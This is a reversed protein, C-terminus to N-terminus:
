SQGQVTTHIIRFPWRDTASSLDYSYCDTSGVLRMLPATQNFTGDMPIRKLVSMCWDHVPRLLRQNKSNGLIIRKGAGPYACALRGSIPPIGLDAAKPLLPGIRKEFWYDLDHGAFLKNNKDIPYRIRHFWISGQSFQEGRAHVFELLSTWSALEYPFSVFCSKVRKAKERPIKMRRELLLNTLNWTPM